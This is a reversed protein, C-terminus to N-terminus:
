IAPSGDEAVLPAAKLTSPPTTRAIRHTKPLPNTQILDLWAPRMQAIAAAWEDKSTEGDSTTHDPSYNFSEQVM